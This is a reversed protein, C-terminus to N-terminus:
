TRPVKYHDVIGGKRIFAMEVLWLVEQAFPRNLDTIDYFRYGHKEMLQMMRLVTNKMDLNNVTAEVLFVEATGLLNGAGEIVEEDLGEADIKILDPRPWDTKDEALSALTVVPIKIQQYGRQQAEEETFRFSCSDDREHLTFAFSGAEKGVGVAKYRINANTDLLTQFHPKLREQPEILTFKSNPFFRLAERTWHGKNAGIDIIHKPQFGAQLLNNFVTHLLQQKESNKKPKAPQLRILKYGFVNIIKQLIQKM